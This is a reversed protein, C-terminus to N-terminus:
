EGFIETYYQNYQDESIEEDNYYYTRDKEDEDDGIWYLKFSDVVNLDGDYKDFEYYGRGSHTTDRHLVWIEDKYTVYSCIGATGEGHAFCIIKGDKCDFILDGYVPNFLIYELEGDNDVDAPDEISVQETADGYENFDFYSADMYYPEGDPDSSIFEAQARGDCFAKFLEEPSMQALEEETYPTTDPDEIHEKLFSDIDDQSTISTCNPFYVTTLDDIEDYWYKSYLDEYEEETISEGFNEFIDDKSDDFYFERSLSCLTVAKGDEISFAFFMYHGGDTNSSSLDYSFYNGKETYSFEGYSGFFPFDDNVLSFAKGDVCTYLYAGQSEADGDIIALEYVDDEDIYILEAGFDDAKEELHEALVEYYADLEAREYLSETEGSTEDDTTAAEDAVNEEEATTEEDTTTMDDSETSDTAADGNDKDLVLDPKPLSGKSCGTLMSLALLAYIAKKKM